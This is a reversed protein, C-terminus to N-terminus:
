KRVNTVRKEALLEKAEQLKSILVDISESSTFSFRLFPSKKLKADAGITTPECDQFDVFLGGGLLDYAHIAVNGYGFRVKLGM